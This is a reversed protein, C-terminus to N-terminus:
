FKWRKLMLRLEDRHKSEDAIIDDLRVALGPEGVEEAQLRREVYRVITAEEDALANELMERPDDTMKVTAAKVVPEGGMAVIKDALMEAHALEDPIESAFFARLEQRFPGTVASAYTRYTIVAAYEHSLDTNLGNILTERSGNNKGMQFAERANTSDGIFMMQIRIAAM